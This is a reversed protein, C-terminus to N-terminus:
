PLSREAKDNPNLLYDLRVEARARDAIIRWHEIEVNLVNRKAEWVESLPLTGAAYGAQALTLRAEAAPILRVQHELERAEATDWEARAAELEAQLERRRDELQYRTKDVMLMKEATVRDQRNSRDWPIDFGVQFTMMDSFDSSRKGYMLEWRWNLLKEAQVREVETEAVATMQRANQLEPHREMSATPLSEAGFKPLDDPLPRQAADGLWRSLKARAIQAERGAVLQQDRMMSLQMELKLVDRSAFGGSSVQSAAVKREAALAEALQRSLDARRQAEFVDLWALAVDRRIRRAALQQETLTQDAEAQLRRAAAERKELPIVEQMVGITSMTMPERNFRFAESDTVPLNQIGLRLQPDPLQGEAVAAEQLAAASADFAQLMPQRTIALAQAEALTLVAEASAPTAMALLWCVLLRSGLSLPKM